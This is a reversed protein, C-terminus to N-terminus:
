PVTPELRSTYCVVQKWAWDGSFFNKYCRKNDDTYDQYPVYEIEAAFDPNSLMIHVLLRPDRFWVDYEATMWPPVNEAPRTGSYSMSFTQWSVDGLPTSNITEYLDHHGTFPPSDDHKILTAAWLDLLTDIQGVSMQNRTYLFEATEFAVRNEYPTWDTPLAETQPPPLV